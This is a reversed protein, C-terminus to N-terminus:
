RGGSLLEYASVCLKKMANSLGFSLLLVIIALLIMGVWSTPVGLADVCWRRCAPLLLGHSCYVFFISQFWAPLEPLRQRRAFEWLVGWLALIMSCVCIVRILM